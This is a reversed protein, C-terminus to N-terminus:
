APKAVGSVTVLGDTVTITVNDMKLNQGLNVSQRVASDLQASPAAPLNLQGLRSEVITLQLRDGGSVQVTAVLFLPLTQGAWHANAQGEIRGAATAHLVLNDLPLSEYRLEDNALSSLESDSFSETVLAPQGSQGGSRGAANRLADIKRQAAAAQVADVKVQSLTRYPTTATRYLYGGGAVALVLVLAALLKKMVFAGHHTDDGATQGVAV